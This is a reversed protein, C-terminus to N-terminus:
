LTWKELAKEFSFFPKKLKQNVYNHFDITWKFLVMRDELFDTYKIEELLHIHRIYERKCESCPIIFEVDKLIKKIKNFCYNNWTKKDPISITHIYGWIFNGWHYKSKKM